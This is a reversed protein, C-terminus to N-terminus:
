FLGSRRNTAMSALQQANNVWPKAAFRRQLFYKQIDQAKSVTKMALEPVLDDIESLMMFCLVVTRILQNSTKSHEFGHDSCDGFFVRRCGMCPYKSKVAIADVTGSLIGTECGEGM